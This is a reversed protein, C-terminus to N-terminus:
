IGTAGGLIRLNDVESCETVGGRRSQTTTRESFERRAASMRCLKLTPNYLNCRYIYPRDKHTFLREPNLKFQYPNGHRGAPETMTYGSRSWSVSIDPEPAISPSDWRIAEKIAGYAAKSQIVQKAEMGVLKLHRQVTRDCKYGREQAIAPLSAGYPVFGKSVSIWRKGIALLFPIGGKDSDHSPRNKESEFFDSPQPLHLSTTKGQADKKCRASKPLNRWAAYRALQQKRQTVAATAYARLEALSLFIEALTVEVTVGWANIGKRSFKRKDGRSYDPNEEKVEWGQAKSIAFLGGLAVRLTGQQYEYWRFAGAKKGERLWQYITSSGANLLCTLFEKEITVYGAGDIDLARLVYWLRAWSFGKELVRSHLRVPLALFDAKECIENCLYLYPLLLFLAM